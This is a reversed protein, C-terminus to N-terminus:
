CVLTQTKAASTPPPILKQKAARRFTFRCCLRLAKAGFICSIFIEHKALRLSLLSFSSEKEGEEGEEEQMIMGFVDCRRIGAAPHLDSICTADGASGPKTDTWLGHDALPGLNYRNQVTTSSGRM